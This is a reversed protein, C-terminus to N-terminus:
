SGTLELTLIMNKQGGGCLAMCPGSGVDEAMHVRAIRNSKAEAGMNISSGGNFEM